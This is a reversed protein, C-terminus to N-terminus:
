EAPFHDRLGVSFQLILTSDKANLKGDGSVEACTECFKATEKLVGVSKQLILTADKANIKGDHNVDGLRFDCGTEEPLKPALVYYSCHTISFEVYTDNVVKLDEAILELKGTENNYYYVCLNEDSGLYERMAYDVKVQITAKGPM